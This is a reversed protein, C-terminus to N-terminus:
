NEILTIFDKYLIFKADATIIPLGEYMATAMVLKEFPDKHDPVIPVNECHMIHENKIPMLSFGDM